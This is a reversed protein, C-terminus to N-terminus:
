HWPHAQQQQAHAHRRPAITPIHSPSTFVNVSFTEYSDDIGITLETPTLPDFRFSLWTWNGETVNGQTTYTEFANTDNNFVSFSVHLNDPGIYASVTVMNYFLTVQGSFPTRVRVQMRAYFGDRSVLYWAKTGLELALTTTTRPGFTLVSDKIIQYGSERYGSSALSLESLETYATWLISASDYVRNAPDYAYKPDTDDFNCYTVIYPDENYPLTYQSLLIQEKTMYYSYLKFQKLLYRYRYDAHSVAFTVYESALWALRTDPISLASVTPDQLVGALNTIYGKFKAPTSKWSCTVFFWKGATAMTSGTITIYKFGVNSLNIGCYFYNGAVISLLITSNATSLITRQTFSQPIYFWLSFTMADSPPTAIPFKIPGTMYTPPYAITRRVPVVFECENSMGKCMMATANYTYGPICIGLDYDYSWYDEQNLGTPVTFNGTAGTVKEVLVNGEGENLRYYSHLQNFLSVDIERRLKIVGIDNM